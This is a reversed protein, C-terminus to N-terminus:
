FFYSANYMIDDENVAIVSLLAPLIILFTKLRM